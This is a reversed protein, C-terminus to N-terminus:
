HVSCFIYEKETLTLHCIWVVKPLLVLKQILAYLNTCSLRM